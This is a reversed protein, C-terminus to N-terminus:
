KNIIEIINLVKSEEVNLKDAILIPDITLYGSEDLNGIVLQADECTSEKGIWGLTVVFFIPNM